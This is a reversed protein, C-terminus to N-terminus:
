LQLDVIIQQSLVRETVMKIFLRDNEDLTDPDLKKNIVAYLVIDRLRLFLPISEIAERPITNETKYGKLFHELFRNAIAERNDEKHYDRGLMTYYLAIAIDSAFWHYSCDDFDFVNIKGNEILFNGSHIDSHILGFVDSNIALQNIQEIVNDRYQLVKQPPSKVFEEIKLLEEENWDPRKVQNSPTYEKTIRHLQGITKGWEEVLEWKGEEEVERFRLRSGNFKEYCAVIFYSDDAAPIVETLQHNKSFFHESGSSRKRKPFSGM